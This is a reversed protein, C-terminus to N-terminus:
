AVLTAIGRPELAGGSAADESGQGAEVDRCSTAEEAVPTMDVTLKVEGLPGTSCM